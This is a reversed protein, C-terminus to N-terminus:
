HARSASKHKEAPPVAEPGKQPTAQPSTSLPAEALAKRIFGAPVIATLVAHDKEQEVKLSDFLARVDADQGEAGTSIEAAHFLNLYTAARDAVNKAEQESGTFAVGRFHLERLYRISALLVAPQTFWTSWGGPGTKFFEASPDIRFIAWALSAFPVEKYYQRLLAPGGFPSALKRSRDIIGRIVQPDDTNSAAVTDLGLIAVRVTRGELPISYIDVSRYNETSSALRGLYTRLRDGHIKGVFVESFRIQPAQAVKSPYHVAFAAEDLDREFQFGTAQIFQEYEPDHPVVPLEGLINARRMWQLNIYVFGDAGPLLRAPEPPAHKRLVVVLAVAAAVLLVAVIIPLSRRIRM